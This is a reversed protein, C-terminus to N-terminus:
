AQCYRGQLLESTKTVGLHTVQHLQAVVTQGLAEPVLLRDDPLTWWGDPGKFAQKQEALEKDQKTYSDPDTM